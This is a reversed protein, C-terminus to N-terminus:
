VGTAKGTKLMANISQAYVRFLDIEKVVAISKTVMGQLEVKSM